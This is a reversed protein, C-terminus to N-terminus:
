TFTIAKYNKHLSRKKKECTSQLGGHPFFHRSYMKGCYRAFRVFRIPENLFGMNKAYIQRQALLM